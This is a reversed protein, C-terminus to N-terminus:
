DDAHGVMTEGLGFGDREINRWNPGYVTKLVHEQAQRATVHHIGEVEM